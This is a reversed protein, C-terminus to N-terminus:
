LLSSSNYITTENSVKLYSSHTHSCRTPKGEANALVASAARLVALALSQYDGKEFYFLEGVDPESVHGKSFDVNLEAAEAVKMLDGREPDCPNFVRVFDGADYINDAVHKYGLLKAAAEILQKLETNM